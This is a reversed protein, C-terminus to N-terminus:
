HVEEAPDFVPDLVLVLRTEGTGEIPPSRHVFGFNPETPWLSGRMLFPSGTPVTHIPAPTDGGVSQGYQTGTGRYTCILRASIADMHFKRCANTTVVDLRLRLYPADLLESFAAALQTIDDELWTREKSKPLGSMDGLHALAEAIARPQLILRGRPLLDPNLQELWTRLAAPVQRQWLLAACDKELFKPLEAIEKTLRLGLTDPALDPSFVNM